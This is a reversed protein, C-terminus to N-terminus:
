RAKGGVDGLEQLFIRLERSVTDPDDDHACHSAREVKVLKCPQHRAACAAEIGRAISFDLFKDDAGWIVGLPMSTPLAHLLPAASPHGINRLAYACIRYFAESAEPAEAPQQVSRILDADVQHANTYVSELLSPVRQRTEELVGDSLKRLLGELTRQQQEVASLLLPQAQVLRRAVEPVTLSPLVLVLLLLQWATVAVKDPLLSQRQAASEGGGSNADSAQFTSDEEEKGEEKEMQLTTIAIFEDIDVTGIGNECSLARTCKGCFTV